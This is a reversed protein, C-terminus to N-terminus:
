ALLVSALHFFTFKNTAKLVRSTVWGTRKITVNTGPWKVQLISPSPALSTKANLLLAVMMANPPLASFMAGASRMVSSLPTPVRSHSLKTARTTTKEITIM